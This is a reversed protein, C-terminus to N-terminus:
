KRPFMTEFPDPDKTKESKGSVNRASSLDPPINAATRDAESKGGLEAEIEARIEARLKERYTDPDKMQELEALKQGFQYGAKAPNASSMIETIAAPNSQGYAIVKTIVDDYDPHKERMRDEADILQQKKQVRDRRDLLSEVFAVPNDWFEGKPQEEEETRAPQAQGNNSRSKDLEAELEAIRKEREQRKEREAKMAKYPVPREENVEEATTAESNPKEVTETVGSDDVEHHAEGGNTDDSAKTFEDLFDTETQSM